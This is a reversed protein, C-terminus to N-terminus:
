WFRRLKPTADLVPGAIFQSFYRWKEAHNHRGEEELSIIQHEITSKIESFYFNCKVFDEIESDAGDFPMAFPNIVFRGTQDKIMPKHRPDHTSKSCEDVVADAILIRPYFAEREEINVAQLLAPGFIVNDRHHLRGLVVAGRTLFGTRLVDIILKSAATLIRRGFSKPLSYVFHDSFHGFQVELFMPNIIGLLAPGHETPVIKGEKALLEKRDQDNYDGARKHITEAAAALKSEDGGSIEASWGLIDAYLLLREEYVMRYVLSNIISGLYASGMTRYLWGM